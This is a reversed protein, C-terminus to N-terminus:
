TGPLTPSTSKHFRALSRPDRVMRPLETLVKPYTLRSWPLPGMLLGQEIAADIAEAQGDDGVIVFTKTSFEPHRLLEIEQMVADSIHRSDLVLIMTSKSLRTVVELWEESNAIRVNSEDNLRRIYWGKGMAAGDLLSAVRLPYVQKRLNWLLDNTDPSSRGLFLIAAPITGIFFTNGGFITIYFGIWVTTHSDFSTGIVLIVMGLPWSIAAIVIHSGGFSIRKPDLRMMEGWSKGWESGITSASIAMRLPWYFARSVEWGVLLALAPHLDLWRNLVIITLVAFPLHAYRAVIFLVHHTM